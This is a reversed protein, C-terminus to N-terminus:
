QRTHKLVEGLAYPYPPCGRIRADAPVDSTCCNGFAVKLAGPVDAEEPLSGMFVEVDRDITGQLLQCSLLLANACSSCANRNHIRFRAPVLGALSVKKLPRRVSQVSEGIVEIRGLDIANAEVYYRLHRVEDIDFGTVGCCVADVEAPNAGAFVLGLDVMDGGRPGMREMCLVADVIHLTPRVVSNLDVIAKDLGVEHFRRKEERVLVGKLNKLAITVATAYHVKLNPLNIIKDAELVERGIRVRDIVLPKPVNVEVAESENLNVLRIGYKGALAAYGTKEFLMGTMRADGFTSEAIFVEGAGSDLLMRILTETLEINTCGEVGNLNPKLLVRDGPSVFAGLGGILDLSHAVAQAIGATTRVISIKGM